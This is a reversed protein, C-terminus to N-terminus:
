LSRRFIRFRRIKTTATNRISTRRPTAPRHEASISSKSYGHGLVSRWVRAVVCPTRFFDEFMRLAFVCFGTHRSVPVFAQKPPGGWGAAGRRGWPPGEAGGIADQPGIQNIRTSLFQAGKSAFSRPGSRPRPTPLSHGEAFSMPHSRLIRFLLRGLTEVHSVDRRLVHSIRQSPQSANPGAFRLM